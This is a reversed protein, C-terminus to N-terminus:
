SNKQPNRGLIKRIWRESVNFRLALAEVTWGEAALRRIAADRAPKQLRTRSPFKVVQGALRLGIRKAADPGVVAAIEALIGPLESM